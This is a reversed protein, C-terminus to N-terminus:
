FGARVECEHIVYRGSQLGPRLLLRGTMGRPPLAIWLENRGHQVPATIVRKRDYSLESQTQYFLNLRTDHPSDVVLHLIASGHAPFAFRPLYALDTGSQTRWRLRDIAVSPATWTADTM